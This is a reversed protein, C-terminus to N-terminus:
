ELLRREEQSSLGAEFLAKKSLAMNELGGKFQNVDQKKLNALSQYHTLAVASQVQAGLLARLSADITEGRKELHRYLGHMGLLIAVGVAGLVAPHLPQALRTWPDVRPQASPEIPTENDM